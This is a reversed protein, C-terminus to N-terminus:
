CRCMCDNIGAVFSLMDLFSTWTSSPHWLFLSCANNVDLRLLSLSHGSALRDKM